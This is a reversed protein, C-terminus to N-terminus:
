FDWGCCYFMVEQFLTWSRPTLPFKSSQLCPPYKKLWCIPNVVHNIRFSYDSCLVILPKLGYTSWNQLKPKVARVNSWVSLSTRWWLKFRCVEIQWWSKLDATLFWWCIFLKVFYSFHVAAWLFLIFFLFYKVVLGCERKAVWLTTNQGSLSGSQNPNPLQLDPKHLCSLWDPM